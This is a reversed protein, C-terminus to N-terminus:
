QYFKCFQYFDGALCIFTNFQYCTSTYIRKRTKRKVKNRLNTTSTTKRAKEIDFSTDTM